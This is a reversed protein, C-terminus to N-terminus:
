VGYKQIMDAEVESWTRGANPNSKHDELRQDLIKKHEESVEYDEYNIASETVAFIRQLMDEDATQVIKMIKNRMETTGM